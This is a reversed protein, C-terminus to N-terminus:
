GTAEKERDILKSLERTSLSIEKGEALIRYIGGKTSGMGMEELVEMVRKCIGRQYLDGGREIIENCAANIVKRQTSFKDKKKAFMEKGKLLERVWKMAQAKGFYLGMLYAASSVLSAHNEANSDCEVKVWHAPFEEAEVGHLDLIRYANLLAIKWFNEEQYRSAMAQSAFDHEVFLYFSSLEAANEHEHRTMGNYLVSASVPMRECNRVMDRRYDRVCQRNRLCAPRKAARAKERERERYAEIVNRAQDELLVPAHVLKKPFQFVGDDHNIVLPNDEGPNDHIEALM